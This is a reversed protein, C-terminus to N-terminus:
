SVGKKQSLNFHIVPLSQVASLKRRDRVKAYVQTSKIDKHGLLKSVTYLDGDECNELINTAFSHRGSHFKVRPLKAVESWKRLAYRVRQYVTMKGDIEVEKIKPFVYISPEENKAEAKREEIIAIASQTLPLYEIGETKEQEFYIYYQTQNQVEKIIVESWRLPNVDSWRLGTFCSFLYGQKYQKEIDCPTNALHQLQELTFSTRFTDQKKLKLNTPIEQYPNTKILKSKVAAILSTNIYLIYQRATNNSVKNGFLYTEFDKFWDANLKTFPLQASKNFKRLHNLVTKHAPIGTRKTYNEFYTLFCNLKNGRKELNNGLVILEHERKTRIEQAMKRKEKDDESPRNKNIHIELFEYWRAKNHYIDLYFSVQGNKMKKERLQVGM